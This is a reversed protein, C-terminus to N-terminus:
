PTRGYLAQCFNKLIVSSQLRLMSQIKLGSVQVALSLEAPEQKLTKVSM